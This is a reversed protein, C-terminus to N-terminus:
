SPEFAFFCKGLSFISFVVWENFVLRDLFLDALGMASKGDGGRSARCYRCLVLLAFLGREAVFQM